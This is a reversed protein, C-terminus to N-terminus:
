GKPTTTSTTTAPVTTTTATAPVTTTTTTASQSNLGVMLAVQKANPRQPVAGKPLFAMDIEIENTFKISSPNTTITPTTQGFNSWYAYEIQGAKKAYASGAPCLEGNHFTSQATAKGNKLPIALVSSSAILGPYENAFQGLTAHNGSDAASLPSVRIVDTPGVIFGATRNTEDTPLLPQTVGCIDFTLAAYWVTGVTPPTGASSAAPHQYDYRAVTVSALGLVVIAALAGYYNLPRSKKYAKSGGAAGVKSVLKGTASKAVTFV